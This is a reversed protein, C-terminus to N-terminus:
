FPWLAQVAARLAPALIIGVFFAIVTVVIVVIRQRASM